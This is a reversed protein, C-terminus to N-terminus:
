LFSYEETSVSDPKGKGGKKRQINKLAFVCLSAFSFSPNLHGLPVRVRKKGGGKRRQTKANFFGSSTRRALYDELKRRLHPHRGPEFAIEHCFPRHDHSVTIVTGKYENLGWGLASVAELDLHSNPEDLIIFNHEELMMGALILRPQREVGFSSWMKLRTTGFLM